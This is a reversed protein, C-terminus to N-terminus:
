LIELKIIHLIDSGCKGIILYFRRSYNAIIIFKKKYVYYSKNLMKPIIYFFYLSFRRVLVKKNSHILTYLAQRAIIFRKLDIIARIPERLLAHQFQVAHNNSKFDNIIKGKNQVM